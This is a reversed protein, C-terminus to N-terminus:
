LCAGDRKIGKTKNQMTGRLAEMHTAPMCSRDEEAQQIVRMAKFGHKM